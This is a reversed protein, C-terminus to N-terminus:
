AMANELFFDKLKYNSLVFHEFVYKQADLLSLGGMMLENVKKQILPVQKQIRNMKDENFTINDETIIINQPLSAPMVPNKDIRNQYSEFETIAKTKEQPTRLRQLLKRKRWYENFMPVSWNLQRKLLNTFGSNELSM